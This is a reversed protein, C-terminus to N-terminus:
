GKNATIIINIMPPCKISSELVVRMTAAAGTPSIAKVNAGFYSTLVSAIAREIKHVKIADM